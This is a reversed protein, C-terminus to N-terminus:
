EFFFFQHTGLVEVNTLEQMKLADKLAVSWIQSVKQYMALASDSNNESLFINAM